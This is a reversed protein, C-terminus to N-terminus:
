SRPGNGQKRQSGNARPSPCQRAMHGMGGCNFCRVAGDRRTTGGGRGNRWGRAGKRDGRQVMGVEELEPSSMPGGSTSPHQMTLRPDAVAVAPAVEPHIRTRRILSTLDELSPYKDEQMQARVVSQLSAPLGSILREKFPRTNDSVGVTAALATLAVVFQDLTEGPQWQRAAFLTWPDGTQQRAHWKELSDLVETLTATSTALQARIALLAADCVYLPLLVKPDVATKASSSKAALSAQCRLKWVSFTSSIELRDM